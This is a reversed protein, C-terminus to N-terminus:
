AANVNFGKINSLENKKNRIEEEIDYDDQIGLWFKPSNGFYYSLRLATDASIRRRGKIIESIRTQPIRIDKCLRYASISLPILFEEKLIEGPHINLLKKM